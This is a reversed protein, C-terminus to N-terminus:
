IERGEVKTSLQKVKEPVAELYPDIKLARRLADLALKDEGLEEFIVGLGTLAGYHRPERAVIVRLDALARAINKEQYYLTARQARAEVFDPTTQVVADLLELALRNDKAAVSVRAREMLLDATPSGSQLRAADLRSEILRAVEANPAKALADYLANLHQAPDPKATLRLSKRNVRAQPAAHPASQEVGAPARSRSQDESQEQFREQLREQSREQFQDRFRDQSQEQSQVESLAQAASATAAFAVAMFLALLRRGNM